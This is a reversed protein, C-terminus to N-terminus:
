LLDPRKCVALIQVHLEVTVVTFVSLDFQMAFRQLAASQVQLCKNRHM